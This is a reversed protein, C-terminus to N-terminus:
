SVSVVTEDKASVFAHDLCPVFTSPAAHIPTLPRSTISCSTSLKRDQTLPIIGQVEASGAYDKLDRRPQKIPDERDYAAPSISPDPIGALLFAQRKSTIDNTSFAISRTGHIIQM